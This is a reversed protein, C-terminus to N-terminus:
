SRLAFADIARALEVPRTLPLRHGGELWRVSIRPYRSALREGGQRWIENNRRAHATRNNGATKTALIVTVPCHVRDYIDNLTQRRADVDLVMDAIADGSLDHRYATLRLLLASLKMPLGNLLKRMSAQDEILSKAIPVAGDIVILGSLADPHLAALNVAIDAGLSWGVVIPKDDKVTDLVCEADSLYAGFSHDAATSSEGHNRFDFTVVDYEGNLARIVRRWIVQTSAAGNIFVLKQGEGSRTVAITVQGNEILSRQTVM